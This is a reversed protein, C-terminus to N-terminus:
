QKEIQEQWSLARATGIRIAEHIDEGAIQRLEKFALWCELSSGMFKM